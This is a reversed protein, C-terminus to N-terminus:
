CIKMNQHVIFESSKVPLTIVFYNMNLFIPIKQCKVITIGHFTSVVYGSITLPEITLPVAAHYNSSNEVVKDDGACFLNVLNM